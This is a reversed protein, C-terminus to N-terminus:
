CGQSRFGLSTRRRSVGAPRDLCRDLDSSFHPRTSIRPPTASPVSTQSWHSLHSRWSISAFSRQLSTGRCGALRNLRQAAHNARAETAEHCKRGKLTRCDVSSIHEINPVVLCRTQLSSPSSM